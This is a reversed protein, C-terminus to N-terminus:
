NTEEHLGNEGHPRISCMLTRRLVTTDVYTGGTWQRCHNYEVGLEYCSEFRKINDYRVNAQLCVFRAGKWVNAAPRKLVFLLRM